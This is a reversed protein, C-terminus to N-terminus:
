YFLLVAAAALGWALWWLRRRQLRVWATMRGPIESWRIRTGWGLAVGSVLGVTWQSSTAASFTPDDWSVYTHAALASALGLALLTIFRLLRGLRTAGHEAATAPAAQPPTGPTGRSAASTATSTLVTM